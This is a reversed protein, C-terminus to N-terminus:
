QSARRRTRTRPAIKLQAALTRATVIQTRGFRKLSLLDSKDGTALFDANSVVATALLFNDCPDPSMDILPLDTVVEALHRLDNHMAGAAAPALYKRVRPYRTARRFEELQEISTVLAFRGDRWARYLRDPIGRPSILASILLNTDLIVKM